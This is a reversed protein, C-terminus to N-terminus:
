VVVLIPAAVKAAVPSMQMPSCPHAAHNLGAGCVPNSGVWSSETYEGRTFVGPEYRVRSWVM